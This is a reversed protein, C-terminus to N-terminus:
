KKFLNIKNSIIGTIYSTSCSTGKDGNLCIGNYSVDIRTGKNAIELDKSGVVIVRPDSCAPYVNCDEIDITSSDNGASAVVVTGGDIIKKIFYNELEWLETGSISLNLVDLKRYTALELAEIYSRGNLSIGEILVFCHDVKVKSQINKLMSTGHKPYVNISESTRIPQKENDCLKVNKYEFQTDIIGIRVEKAEVMIFNLLILLLM